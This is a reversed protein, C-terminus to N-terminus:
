FINKKKITKIGLEKLIINNLISPSNTMPCTASTTKPFAIVDRINKSHTLLMSIRDLGLAIGAHPPAGYKLAEILFGFKEQQINKHIKLINFIQKQKKYEHIRVS